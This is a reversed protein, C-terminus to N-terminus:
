NDSQTRDTLPSNGGHGSQFHCQGVDPSFVRLSRSVESRGMSSLVSIEFVSDGGISEGITVVGIVITSIVSVVAPLKPEWVPM